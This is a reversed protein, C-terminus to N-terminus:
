SRCSRPDSIDFEAVLSLTLAAACACGHSLHVRAILILVISLSLVPQTCRFFICMGPLARAFTTLGADAEGTIVVNPSANEYIDCDVFDGM